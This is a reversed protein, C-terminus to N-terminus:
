ILKEEIFTKATPVNQQSRVLIKSRSDKKPAGQLQVFAKKKRDKELLRQWLKKDGLVSFIIWCKRTPLFGKSWYHM